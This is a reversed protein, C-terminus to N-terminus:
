DFTQEVEKRRDNQQSKQRYRHKDNGDPDLCVALARDKVSLLAHRFVSLMKSDM